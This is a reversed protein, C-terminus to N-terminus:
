IHIFLASHPKAWLQDEYGVIVYRHLSCMKSPFNLPILECTSSADQNAKRDRSNFQEVQLLSLM